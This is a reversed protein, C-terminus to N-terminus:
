YKQSKKFSKEIYKKLILIIVITIVIPCIAAITLSLNVKAMSFSTILIIFIVRSAHSLARYTAGRIEGIDKVFYSM